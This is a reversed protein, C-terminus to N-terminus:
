ADTIGQLTSPEAKLSPLMVVIREGTGMWHGFVEMPGLPLDVTAKGDTLSLTHGKDAIMEREAQAKDKAEKKEVKNKVHSAQMAFRLTNVSETMSDAAQTVCAILATKSNGGIGAKLIYTLACDKYPVFSGGSSQNELLTVVVRGLCGM